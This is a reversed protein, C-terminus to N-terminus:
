FEDRWARLVAFVAEATSAQPQRERVRAQVAPEHCRLFPNTAKELALSSPVTARGALRLAESEAVRARIAPNEPEVLAAFPLNLLTYEHACFIRTSDPLAAIREMAQFMQAPTGEFLRGCGAGFLTDGCFLADEALYALHGCTHGPVSWVSFRCAPTASRCAPCM